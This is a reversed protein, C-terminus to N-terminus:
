NPKTHSVPRCFGGRSNTQDESRPYWSVQYTHIEPGKVQSKEHLGVTVVGAALSIGPLILPATFPLLFIYILYNAIAKLRNVKKFM